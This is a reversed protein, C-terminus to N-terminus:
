REPVHVFSDPSGEHFVEGHGRAILNSAADIREQVEILRLMM